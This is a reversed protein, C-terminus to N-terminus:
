YVRYGNRVVVASMCQRWRVPQWLCAVCTFNGGVPQACEECVLSHHGYVSYFVTPMFAGVVSVLLMVSSVGASAPNFRMEKFRLGGLIMALGPILLM